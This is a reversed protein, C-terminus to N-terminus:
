CCGVGVQGVESRAEGGVCPLEAGKVLLFFAVRRLRLLFLGLDAWGAANTLQRSACQVAPWPLVTTKGSGAEGRPLIRSTFPLVQEIRDVPMGDHNASM